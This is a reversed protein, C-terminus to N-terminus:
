SPRFLIIRIIVRAPLVSKRMGWFAMLHRNSCVFLHSALDDGADELVVLMNTQYELM